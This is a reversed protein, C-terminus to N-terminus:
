IINLILMINNDIIYHPTTIDIIWSPINNYLDTSYLGVVKIFYCCLLFNNNYDNFLKIIERCFDIKLNNVYDIDM